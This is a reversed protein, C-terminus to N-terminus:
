FVLRLAPAAFDAALNSRHPAAFAMADLKAM